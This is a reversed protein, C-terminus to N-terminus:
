SANYLVDTTLLTVIFYNRIIERLVLPWMTKSESHFMRPFLNLLTLRALIWVATELGFTRGETEFLSWRAKRFAFRRYPKRRKRCWFGLSSPKVINNVKLCVWLTEMCLYSPSEIELACGYYRDGIQRVSPTAFFKGFVHWRTAILCFPTWWHRTFETMM